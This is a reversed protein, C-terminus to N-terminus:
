DDNRYWEPPPLANLAQKLADYEDQEVRLHRIAQPKGSACASVMMSFKDDGHRYMVLVRHGTDIATEPEVVKRCLPCQVPDPPLPTTPM